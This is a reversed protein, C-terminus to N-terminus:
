CARVVGPHYNKKEADVRRAENAYIDFSARLAFYNALVRFIYFLYLRTLTLQARKRTDICGRYM